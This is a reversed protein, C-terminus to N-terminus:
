PLEMKHHAPLSYWYRSSDPLINEVEEKLQCSKMISLENESHSRHLKPRATGGQNEVVGGAEEDMLSTSRESVLSSPNCKRRKSQSQVVREADSSSNCGPPIPRKFRPITFDLVGAHSPINNDSNAAATPPDLMSLARRFLPRKFGCGVPRACRPPPPAYQKCAAAASPRAQRDADCSPQQYLVSSELHSPLIIKKSLLASLDFRPSEAESDENITALAELGFGDDSIRTNDAATSEEREPSAGLPEVGEEKGPSCDTLIDDMSGPEVGLRLEGNSNCCVEMAAGDNDDLNKHVVAAVGVPVFTASKQEETEENDKFISFPVIPPQPRRRADMSSVAPLSSSLIAPPPPRARSLLPPLVKAPSVGLKSM